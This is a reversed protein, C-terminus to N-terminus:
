AQLFRATYKINRQFMNFAGKIKQPNVQGFSLYLSQHGVQGSILVVQRPCTSATKTADQPCLVSFNNEMPISIRSSTIVKEPM